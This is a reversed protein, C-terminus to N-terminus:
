SMSGAYPKFKNYPDGEASGQYESIRVHSVTSAGRM